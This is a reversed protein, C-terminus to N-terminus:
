HNHNQGTRLLYATKCRQGHILYFVVPILGQRDLSLRKRSRSAKADSSYPSRTILAISHWRARSMLANHYALEAKTTNGSTVSLRSTGCIRLM